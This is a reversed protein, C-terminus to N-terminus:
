CPRLWVKPSISCRCPGPGGVGGDCVEYDSSPGDVEEHDVGVGVFVVLDEEAKRWAGGGDVCSCDGAVTFPFEVFMKEGDGVPERMRMVAGELHQADASWGLQHRQRRLALSM